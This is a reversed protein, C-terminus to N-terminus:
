RRVWKSLIEPEFPDGHCTECEVANQDRRKLQGSFNESMYSVVVDRDRRDLTHGQGQHCSDCYVAGNELAYPRVFENWMHVAIVKTPTSARADNANHCDTCAFGLSRTFTGMVRRLQKPTLAEFAPLNQPDLGAARLEASMKSPAIPPMKPPHVQRMEHPRPALSAGSACATLAGSALAVVLLGHSVARRRAIAAAVITAMLFAAPGSESDVPSVRGVCGYKPISEDEGPDCTGAPNPDTGARVAEVDIVGNGDSDVRDREMAALAARLSDEDYAQLGRTRMASGWPTNVTGRGTVGCVHCISCQPSQSASLARQIAGPFNPTAHAPTSVFFTAVCVSLLLFCRKM